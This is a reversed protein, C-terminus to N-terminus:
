FLPNFGATRFHQDNTFADTINMRKLVELSTCDVIGADGPFGQRYRDWAHQWDLETPFILGGSLSLQNRLQDIFPRYPKRAAANGCELLVSTTTFLDVRQKLLQFHFDDSSAM